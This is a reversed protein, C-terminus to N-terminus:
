GDAHLAECMAQGALWTRLHTENYMVALLASVRGATPGPLVVSLVRRAERPGRAMATLEDELDIVLDRIYRARGIWDMSDRM